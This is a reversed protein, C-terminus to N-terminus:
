PTVPPTLRARFSSMLLAGPSSSMPPRYFRSLANPLLEVESEPHKTRIRARVELK